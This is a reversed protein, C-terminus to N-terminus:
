KRITTQVNNSITFHGEVQSFAFGVGSIEVQGDLKRGRVPGPSAAVHTNLNVVCAPAEVVFNTTRRGGGFYDYTELRMDTLAVLGGALQKAGRGTLLSRLQNSKKDYEPMRFDRASGGPNLQAWVAPALALALATLALTRQWHAQMM